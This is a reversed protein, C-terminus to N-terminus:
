EKGAGAAEQGMQQAMAEHMKQMHSFMREREEVLSSIVDAMADVKEQGQARNMAQLKTQLEAGRTTAESMMQRHQEMMGQRQIGGTTGQQRMGRGMGQSRGPYQSWGAWAPRGSEDRLQLIQGDKRVESAIIAPQGDFTIRSGTVEIRDRSNIQADQNEIYWDRETLQGRCHIFYWTANRIV